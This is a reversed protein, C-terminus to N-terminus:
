HILNINIFTKSFLTSVMNKCIAAAPDATGEKLTPGFNFNQLREQSRRELHFYQERAQQKRTRKHETGHGEKRVSRHKEQEKIQDLKKHNSTFQQSRKYNLYPTKSVRLM